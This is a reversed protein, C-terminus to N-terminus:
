KKFFGSIRENLSEFFGKADSSHREIEKSYDKLLVNFNKVKSGFSNFFVMTELEPVKEIKPNSDSYGIPIIAQPRLNDPISLLTKLRNEDFAGVWCSSLDLSKASLLINQIAAASSQVSFLREGREKYLEKTMSYDSLVIIFLPATAMWYQQMALESIEQRVNKNTVVIFKFDKLDGASPANAASELILTLKEFEVPKSNFDRVSRRNLIADLVNM